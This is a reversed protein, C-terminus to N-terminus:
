SIFGGLANMIWNGRVMRAERMTWRTRWRGETGDEDGDGDRVELSECISKRPARVRIMEMVVRRRPRSRPELVEHVEGRVRVKRRVERGRKARKRVMSVRIAVWGKAGPRM